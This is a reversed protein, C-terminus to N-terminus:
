CPGKCYFLTSIQGIELFTQTNTAGASTSNSLTVIAAMMMQKCSIRLPARATAEREMKRQIVHTKM